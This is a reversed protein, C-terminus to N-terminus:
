GAKVVRLRRPRKTEPAPEPKPQLAAQLEEFSQQLYGAYRAPDPMMKRCATVSITATGTAYCILHNLGALDHVVDMGYYAVMKAGAMFLPLDPGRISSITTNFRPSLRTGLRTRRVLEGVTKLVLSPLLDAADILLRKGLFSQFNKKNSRTEDVIRRLRTLSDACDTHIPMVASDALNRISNIKMESRSTIPAEALLSAPPLMGKHVLYHRLAGAIVAILVDNISAGAVQDRMSSLQALDFKVAEFARHPSVPNNFPTQPARALQNENNFWRAPWSVLDGLAHGAYM